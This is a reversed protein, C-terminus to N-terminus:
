RNTMQLKNETRERQSRAMLEGQTSTQDSMAGHLLHNHSICLRSCLDGGDCRSSNTSYQSHHLCFRFLPSTIIDRTTLTLSAFRM